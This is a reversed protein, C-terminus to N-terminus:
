AKSSSSFSTSLTCRTRFRQLKSASPSFSCFLSVSAASLLFCLQVTLVVAFLVVVAFVAAAVLGILAVAFDVFVAVLGILAVVFNM